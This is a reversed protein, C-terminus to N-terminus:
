RCVLVKSMLFFKYPAGAKTEKVESLRPIVGKLAVSQHPQGLSEFVTLVVDSRPSIMVLSSSGLM